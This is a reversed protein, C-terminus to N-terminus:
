GRHQVKKLFMNGVINLHIFLAFLFTYDATYSHNFKNCSFTRCSFRSGIYKQKFEAQRCSRFYGAYPIWKGCIVCCLEQWFVHFM